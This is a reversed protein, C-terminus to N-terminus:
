RVGYRARVGCHCAKRSREDNERRLKRAAIEAATLTHSLMQRQYPLPAKAKESM